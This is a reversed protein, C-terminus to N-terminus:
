LKRETLYNWLDQCQQDSVVYRPMTQDVMVRAPDIGERLLHCFNITNFASPPGGRRPRSEVLSDRALLPGFRNSAKTNNAAATSADKPQRQHCNACRLAINPLPETHGALRATIPVKAEFMDAGRGASQQVVLHWGYLGALIAFIAGFIL